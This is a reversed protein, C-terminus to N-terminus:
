MANESKAILVAETRSGVNLKNFVSTLSYEISRKSLHLTDAIEQNTFGKEVEQLILRERETLIDKKSKKGDADQKTILDKLYDYDVVIKGDLIQYIYEIITEKSETKSIAGHMGVRIAEEFYDEVEYGTYVIMKCTSCKKLIKEALDMGNIEGLNLDMLILDYASFDYKMLFHESAEPSLCDVLFDQNTELIAKTGEMVAPHDDIVLLRRM